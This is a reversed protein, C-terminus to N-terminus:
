DEQENLIDDLNQRFNKDSYYQTSNTIVLKLVDSGVPALRHIFLQRTLDEQNFEKLLHGIAANFFPSAFIGIGEFDLEVKGGSKMIPYIINYVKNGDERTICNEGIIEKILNIM